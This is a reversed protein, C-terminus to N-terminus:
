YQFVEFKSLDPYHELDAPQDPHDASRAYIELRQLGEAATPPMMYCHEGIMTYKDKSTPVGETRGDFRMKRFWVDAEEDDHLIAGGGSSLGLPKQPHFSVCQIQTPVYMRSSFRKACDWVPTPALNYVGSWEEDTFLVNFGARKAAMPVSPYTRKPVNVNYGHIIYKAACWLLSLYIAATCSTVAVVKKAGTFQAVAAEFDRVVRFPDSM